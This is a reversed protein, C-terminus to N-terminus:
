PRARGRRAESADSLMVEDSQAIPVPRGQRVAALRERAEAARRVQGDAFIAPLVSHAYRYISGDSRHGADKRIVTLGAKLKKVDKTKSSLDIVRETFMSRRLWIATPRVPGISTNIWAGKGGNAGETSKRIWYNWGGYGYPRGRSNPLMPIRALVDMRGAAKLAHLQAMSPRAVEGAMVRRALEDISTPRDPDAEHEADVRRAISEGCKPGFVVRKAEPDTLGKDDAWM